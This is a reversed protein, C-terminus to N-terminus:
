LEMDEELTHRHACWLIRCNKGGLVCAWAKFSRVIRGAKRLPDFASDFYQKPLSEPQRIKSHVQRPKFGPRLRRESVEMRRLIFEDVDKFAFGYQNSIRTFRRHLGSHARAEFGADAVGMM